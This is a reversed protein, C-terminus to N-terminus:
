TVFKDVPITGSPGWNREPVPWFRSEIIVVLAAVIVVCATGSGDPM